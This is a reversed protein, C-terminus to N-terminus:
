PLLISPGNVSVVFTSGREAREARKILEPFCKVFEQAQDWFSMKLWGSKLFFITHGAQRWAEIKHPNKRIGIDVTVISWGQEGALEKMWTADNADAQFREKLHVVQHDPSVFENLGRAIKPALNNDFFFKM